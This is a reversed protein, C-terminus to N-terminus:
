TCRCFQSRLLMHAEALSSVAGFGQDQIAQSTSRIQSLTKHNWAIGLEYNQNYSPQYLEHLKRGAQYGVDSALIRGGALLYFVSEGDRLFDRGSITMLASFQSLQTETLSRTGGVIPYTYAM